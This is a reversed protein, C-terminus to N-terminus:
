INGKNLKKLAERAKAAESMKKKTEESRKIGTLKSSVKEYIDTRSARLKAAKAYNQRAEESHKIGRTPSPKGTRSESLKERHEKSFTKAFMPNNEGKKSASIKQRTEDSHARKVKKRQERMKNAQEVGYIEEWTKGKKANSWKQKTEKSHIVGSAGEGGDSLNCLCGTGDSLKGYEEILATEINWAEQETLNEHLRKSVFGHKNVINKWFQNRARSLDRQNKGKGVYFPLGDPDDAKYHAYVYYMFM